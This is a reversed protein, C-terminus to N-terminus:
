EVNDEEDEDEDDDDEDDYYYPLEVTKIRACKARLADHVYLDLFELCPCAHVIATLEDDGLDACEDLSLHRLQHMAAIGLLRCHQSGGCGGRRRLELRRMRQCTKSTVECANGGVNVCGRLVLTELLPCNTIFKIFRARMFRCYPEYTLYHSRDGIKMLLKDNVFHSAAFVQIRGDSRDVADKAMFRMCGNHFELKRVLGHLVQRHRTSQLRDSQTWCDDTTCPILWAIQVRRYLHPEQKAADQWSHCVKDPGTLIEWACCVKSLVVALADAPLSSWYRTTETEPPPPPADIEM